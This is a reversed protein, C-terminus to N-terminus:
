SEKGGRACENKRKKKTKEELFNSFWAGVAQNTTKKPGAAKVLPGGMIGRTNGYRPRAQQAKDSEKRKGKKSHVSKSASKGWCFHVGLFAGDLDVGGM